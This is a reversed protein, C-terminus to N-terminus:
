ASCSKWRAARITRRPLGSGRRGTAAPYGASVGYRGAYGGADRRRRARRRAGHGARGGLAVIADAEATPDTLNAGGPTPTPLEVLKRCKWRSQRCSRRIRRARRRDAHHEDPQPDGGCAALRLMAAVAIALVSRGARM